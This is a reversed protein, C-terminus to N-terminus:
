GNDARRNWNNVKNNWKEIADQKSDCNMITMRREDPDGLKWGHIGDDSKFRPCGVSYGFYFGDVVDKSVFAKTGCIPCPKLQNNYEIM